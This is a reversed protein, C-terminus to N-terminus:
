ISRSGNGLGGTNIMPQVPGSKPDIAKLTDVLANNHSLLMTLMVLILFAVAIPRGSPIYGILGILILAGLWTYFPPNNTFMERKLMTGASQVNAWGLFDLYGLALGVAILAYPM